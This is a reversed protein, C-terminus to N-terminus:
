QDGAQAPSCSISPDASVCNPLFVDLSLFGVNPAGTQLGVNRVGYFNFVGGANSSTGPAGVALDSIGDGNFDGAALAAGFLDFGTPVVTGAANITLLQHRSTLGIGGGLNGGGYLILVAGVPRSFFATGFRGASVPVFGVRGPIGIALDTNGDGDFDGHAIGSSSGLSQCQPLDECPDARHRGGEAQEASVVSPMRASHSPLLPTAAILGSLVGRVILSFRKDQM